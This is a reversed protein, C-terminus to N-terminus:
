SQFELVNDNNLLFFISLCSTFIKIQSRQRKICSISFFRRSKVSRYPKIFDVTRTDPSTCQMLPVIVYVYVGGRRSHKLLEFIFDGLLLLIMGKM